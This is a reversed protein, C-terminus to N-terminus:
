NGVLSIYIYIYINRLWSRVGVVGWGREFGLVSLPKRGKRREGCWQGKGQELRSVSPTKAEIRAGVGEVGPAETRRTTSM